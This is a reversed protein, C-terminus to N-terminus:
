NKWCNLYGITAFRLVKWVLHTTENKTSIEGKRDTSIPYYEKVTAHTEQANEPPSKGSVADGLRDILLITRIKDALRIKQPREKLYFLPPTGSLLM